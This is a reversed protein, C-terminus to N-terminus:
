VGERECVIARFKDSNLSPNNVHCCGMGVLLSCGLSHRQCIRDSNYKSKSLNTTDTEFVIRTDIGMCSLKNTILKLLNKQKKLKKCLQFKKIGHLVNIRQIQRCLYVMEMSKKHRKSSINIFCNKKMEGMVKDVLREM